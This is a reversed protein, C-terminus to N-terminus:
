WITPLVTSSGSSSFVGSFRTSLIKAIISLFSSPFNVSCSNWSPEFASGDITWASESYSPRTYDICRGKHWSSWPSFWKSAMQVTRHLLEITWCGSVKVWIHVPTCSYTCASSKQKDGNALRLKLVWFTKKLSSNLLLWIGWNKQSSTILHLM